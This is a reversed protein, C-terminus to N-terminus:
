RGVAARIIRNMVMSTSLRPRDHAGAGGDASGVFPRAPPLSRGTAIWFSTDDQAPPNPAEQTPRGARARILDNMDTM